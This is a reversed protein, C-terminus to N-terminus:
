LTALAAGLHLRSVGDSSSMVMFVLLLMALLIIQRTARKTAATRTPPSRGADACFVLLPLVDSSEMIICRFLLEFMPRRRELVRRRPARRRFMFLELVPSAVVIDPSAFMDPSVDPLIFPFM